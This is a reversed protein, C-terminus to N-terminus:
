DRSFFTEYVEVLRRRAEAGREGTDGVRYAQPIVPGLWFARWLAYDKFLTSFGVDPYCGARQAIEATYKGFDVSSRLRGAFIKEGYRGQDVLMEKQMDSENPLVSEGDLVAGFWRSQLEAIPPMAGLQPRAFGIFALSNGLSPHFVNKFLDQGDLWDSPENQRSSSQDTLVNSLFPIRPQYGTCWVVVDAETCSGDAFVVSNTGQYATVAPRLELSHDLLNYIFDDSKTLFNQSHRAGSYEELLSRVEQYHRTTYGRMRFLSARQTYNNLQTLDRQLRQPPSEGLQTAKSMEASMAISNPAQFQSKSMTWFGPLTLEHAIQGLTNGGILFPTVVLSGVGSFLKDMLRSLTHKGPNGDRLAFISSDDRTFVFHKLEPPLITVVRRENLDVPPTRADPHRGALPLPPYTGIVTMGRRLSMFAPGKGVDAAVHAMEAGTEGGGVTVIRQGKLTNGADKLDRAHVIRAKYGPPPQPSGKAPFDPASHLGSCVAVADCSISERQGNKSAVDVVWSEGDRRVNVTKHGFRIHPKIQFHEAYSELYSLYQEHSVFEPDSDPIPFDSFGLYYKSSTARQDRRVGVHTGSKDM